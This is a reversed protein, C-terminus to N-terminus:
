IAHSNHSKSGTARAAVNEYLELYQAAVEKLRFRRRNQKGAEVLASRYQPDGIIRTLGRRISHPDRPDVLCAGEGAVEPMSSCNSTIVPREVWQAEIIPLGFGEYTSVFAVLDCEQYQSVIQEESLANHQEIAVNNKAAVKEIEPTLKGVIVLQCPLGSLSQILNPVNKNPKTGIQLIRPRLSNFEKPTPHFRESVANPIVHVKTEALRPLHALLERKTAASVVTIAEACRTPWTFWFWKLIARRVGKLRELAHCDHITLITRKHPLAVAVYHIDGTIHFVDARQKSSFLLNRLRSWIGTSFCPVQKPEVNVGSRMLSEALREFISEISFQGPFPRRQIFCIKLSTTLATAIPRTKRDVTECENM